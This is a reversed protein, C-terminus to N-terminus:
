SVEVLVLLGGIGGGGVLGIIILIIAWLLETVRKSGIIAVVGLILTLIAGFGAFLRPGPMEFPMMFAMGLFGLLSLLVMLIGGVLALVYAARGLSTKAVISDEM